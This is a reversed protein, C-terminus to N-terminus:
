SRMLERLISGLFPMRLEPSLDSLALAAKSLASGHDADIALYPEAERGDLLVGVAVLEQLEKSLLRFKSIDM